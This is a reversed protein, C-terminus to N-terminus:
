TNSKPKNILSKVFRFGFVLGIVAMLAVVAYEEKPYYIIMGVCGFCMWLANSLHHMM